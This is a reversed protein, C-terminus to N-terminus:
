QQALFADLRTKGNERLNAYYFKFDYGHYSEPGFLSEAAAPIAYAKSDVSSCIVSGRELDITADAIGESIVYGGGERDALTGKNEEVGAPTEDTKWNLPNICVSGEPVVMNYKGINGPGETNWTVLVGTDDAGQALKVHPNEALWSKTAANGIMYAAVMNEYREPHEAMYEDLILYVMMAGQSHGALMFPRGENYNEFYYDLAAFVDRKPAGSEVEMMEEQAMGALRTADAQRYFPAYINAYSEFATAQSRFIERAGIRMSENNVACIEPDEESKPIYCTPYFYLLDAEHQVAAPLALWNISSDYPTPDFGFDRSPVCNSVQNEPSPEAPAACAVLVFALVATCVVLGFSKLHKM